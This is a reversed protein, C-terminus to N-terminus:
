SVFYQEIEEQKAPRVTFEIAEDGLRALVRVSDRERAKGYRATIAAIRPFEDRNPDGPVFATAGPADCANFTWVRGEFLEELYANEREDRGLIIKIGGSLRLHRGTKLSNMDRLTVADGELHALLDDYKRGFGEDTLHCGGGSPPYETIDLRAALERQPKRSRGSFAFLNERNVTGEMEPITPALLRASLPRLLRGELGSRKMVLDLSQRLQSMPRQGLVEGTFVLAAGEAEMVEKAKKMLLIRCDLCPNAASGHGYRPNSIIELYDDGSVDIPLLRVGLRGAAEAVQPSPTWKWRPGSAIERGLDENFGTYFHVGVVEFGELAMIRHALLSDLGGSFM